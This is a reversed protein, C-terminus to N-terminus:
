SISRPGVFRREVGGGGAPASHILGRRPLRPARHRQLLAPVLRAPGRGRPIDVRQGGFPLPLVLYRRSTRLDGRHDRRPRRVLVRSSPHANAIREVAARVRAAFSENSEAGPIVDWRRRTFVEVVLPDGDAIKKRWVGGEWEGLYVERLDPEVIAEMGTADLLPQATQLTRRLPTVYVAELSWSALREALAKAQMVGEPALDPDGHGDKLPFPNGEVYPVTKGHRVLVIEVSGPPARFTRQHHVRESM